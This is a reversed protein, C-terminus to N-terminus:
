LRLVRGSRKGERGGGEGGGVALAKEVSGNLGPRRWAKAPSGQQAQAAAILQLKRGAGAWEGARGCRWKGEAM